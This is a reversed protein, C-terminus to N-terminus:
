TAEVIKLYKEEFEELTNFEYNFAQTILKNFILKELNNKVLSQSFIKQSEEINKVKTFDFQRINKLEEFNYLYYIFCGLSYIDRKKTRENHSKDFFGPTGTHTIDNATEYDIVSVNLDDDVIINGFSLDSHIMDYKNHIIKLINILDKIIKNKNLDSIDNELMFEYLSKGKIITLVIFFNDILYFSDVFKPAFSEKELIKLTEVENFLHNIGIETSAEKMIILSKNNQEIGLYTSGKGSKGLINIIHYNEPLTYLREIYFDELPVDLDEPFEGDRKDEYGERGLIEGYRYYVVHSNKYRRDSPIEVSKNYAYKLYLDELIEKFHENSNPYITIFKGIQSYGYFGKNQSYLLDISSIIKFCIDKNQIYKYFIKFIDEYNYVTASIHIKFGVDIKPVEVNNQMWYKNETDNVYESKLFDKYNM